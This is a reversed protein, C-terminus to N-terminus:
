TDLTLDVTEREVRLIVVSYTNLFNVSNERFFRWFSLDDEERGTHVGYKYAYTVDGGFSTYVISNKSLGCGDPLEKGSCSVNGYHGIFFLRDRLDTVVVWEGAKEDLVSVRLALRSFDLGEAEPFPNFKEVLFLEDDGIAFLYKSSMLPQQLPMLPTPMLPTAERSYPDIVFIDGNIFTAYFKGRFAVLGKCQAESARQLRVWRMQASRLVFLDLSYAMLVIFEGGRLPLFAVGRYSSSFSDPDYGVMRYQYGLPLIQCDLINMFTPDCEGMKVKVSCQISSSPLKMHDESKDQGVGGMFFESPLANDPSRVRFVFMPFKEVTCSGRSKRPFKAAISPLSYSTRLLCSPFPFISRWPCCVSRAHIVDFSDKLKDKIIQLLEEPLQLLEMAPKAMKASSSPSLSDPLLSCDLMTSSTKKETPFNPSQKSKVI